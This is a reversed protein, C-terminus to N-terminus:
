DKLTGLERSYALFREVKVKKREIATRDLSTLPLWVDSAVMEVAAALDNLEGHLRQLNTLEQGPQIETMGFRLAKDARQAVEAAEEALITLLHELRNM